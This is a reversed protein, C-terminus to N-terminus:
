KGSKATAPSPRPPDPVDALAAPPVVSKAGNKAHWREFILRQMDPDGAFPALQAALEEPSGPKPPEAVKGELGTATPNGHVKGDGVRSVQKGADIKAAIRKQIPVFPEGGHAEAHLALADDCGINSVETPVYKPVGMARVVHKATEVEREAPTGVCITKKGSEFGRQRVPDQVTSAM